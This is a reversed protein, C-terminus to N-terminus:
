FKNRHMVDEIRRKPVHLVGAEDKYYGTDINDTDEAMPAEDPYGLSLVLVPEHTDPIELIERLKDWNVAGLCCSGVGSELATLIMNEVALGVDQQTYNSKLNKRVLIVIYATARRGEEIKGGEAFGGWSTTDFVKAVMESEDVVIYELPQLNRASPALRGANVCKMLVDEPIPRNQDYRRISRRALITEYTTM